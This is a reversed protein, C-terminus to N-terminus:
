ELVHAIYQRVRAFVLLVCSFAWLVGLSRACTVLSRKLDKEEKNSYSYKLQPGRSVANEQLNRVNESRERVTRQRERPFECLDYPMQRKGVFSWSPRALQGRLISRRSAFTNCFM